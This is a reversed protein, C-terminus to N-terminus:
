QGLLELAVPQGPGLQLHRIAGDPLHHGRVGPLRSHPHQLALHGGQAPLGGHLQHLSCALRNGNCLPVQLFIQSRGAEVRLPLCEGLPHAYNIAQGPGRHATLQQLHLDVHDGAAALHLEGAVQAVHHLLRGVCGEAKDAAPGRLQANVSIEVLVPVDM